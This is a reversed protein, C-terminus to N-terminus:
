DKRRAKQLHSLDRRPDLPGPIASTWARQEAVRSALVM